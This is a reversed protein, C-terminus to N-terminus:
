RIQGTTPCRDFSSVRLRNWPLRISRFYHAQMVFETKAANERLGAPIDGTATGQIM